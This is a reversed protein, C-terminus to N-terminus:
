EHQQKIVPQDEKMRAYEEKLLSFIISDQLVNDKFYHQRLYGEEKFGFKKVLKLSPINEPGICAEIRNLNMKGFGYAIVNELAETMLGKGKYEDKTLAYGLEAKRHETLWNHFGCGGIIEGTGKYVM